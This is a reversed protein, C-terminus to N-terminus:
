WPEFRRPVESGAASWFDGSEQNMGGFPSDQHTGSIETQINKVHVADKVL